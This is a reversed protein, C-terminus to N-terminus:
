INTHPEDHPKAVEEESRAAEVEIRRGVAVKAPDRDGSLVDNVWNYLNTAVSPPVPPSQLPPFRSVTQAPPGGKEPPPPPGKGAGAGAAAAGAAAGGAVALPGTNVAVDRLWSFDMFNALLALAHAGLVVAAAGMVASGVAILAMSRNSHSQSTM